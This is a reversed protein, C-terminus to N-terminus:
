TAQYRRSQRPLRHGPLIGWAVGIRAWAGSGTGPGPGPWALDPAWALGSASALGLGLRGARHGTVGRGPAALGPHRHRHSHRILSIIPPALSSRLPIIRLPAPAIPGSRYRCASRILSRRDGPAIAAAVLLYLIIAVHYHRHGVRLPSRRRRPDCLIANHRMHLCSPATCSRKIAPTAFATIAQCASFRTFALCAAQATAPVSHIRRASIAILPSIIIAHLLM